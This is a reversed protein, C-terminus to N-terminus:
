SSKTRYFNLSVSFLNISPNYFYINMRINTDYCTGDGINADYSFNHQSERQYYIFLIIRPVSIADSSSFTSLTVLTRETSETRSTNNVVGAMTVRPQIM